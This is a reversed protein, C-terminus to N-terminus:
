LQRSELERVFQVVAARIDLGYKRAQEVQLELMLLAPSVAKALRGNDDCRRTFKWKQASERSEHEMRKM